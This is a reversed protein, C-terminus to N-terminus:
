SKLEKQAKRVVEEIIRKIREQEKEQLELINHEKTLDIKCGVDEVDEETNVKIEIQPRGNMVKAGLKTESRDTDLSIVGGDPCPISNIVKTVKNLIYNLGKVENENLWGV